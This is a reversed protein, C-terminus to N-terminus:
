WISRFLSNRLSCRKHHQLLHFCGAPDKGPAKTGKIIGAQGMVLAPFVQGESIPEKFVKTLHATM